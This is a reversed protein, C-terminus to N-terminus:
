PRGGTAPIDKDVRGWPRIDTREQNQVIADPREKIRDHFYAPVKKQAQIGDARFGGM